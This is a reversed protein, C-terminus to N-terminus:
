IECAFVTTCSRETRFMNMMLMEIKRRINKNEYECKRKQKVKIMQLPSKEPDNEIVISSPQDLQHRVERLQKLWRELDKETYSDEERRMKFEKTLSDVSKNLNVKAQQIWRQIDTRAQNAVIRIMEISRQEWQNVHSMLPHDHTNRTLDQKLIDHEQGIQDMQQALQKRHEVLHAM